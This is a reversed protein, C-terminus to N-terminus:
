LKGSMHAWLYAPNLSELMALIDQINTADSILSFNFGPLEDDLDRVVDGTDASKVVVNELTIEALFVTNNDHNCSLILM